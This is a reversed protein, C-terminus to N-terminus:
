WDTQFLNWLQNSRELMEEKEKKSIQPFRNTPNYNNCKSPCGLVNFANGIFQSQFSHSLTDLAHYHRYHLCSGTAASMNQDNIIPKSKKAQWNYKGKYLDYSEVEHRVPKFAATYQEHFDNAFFDLFAKANNYRNDNSMKLHQIDPRSNSLKYKLGTAIRLAYTAFCFKKLAKEIKFNQKQEGKLFKAEDHLSYTKIFDHMVCLIACNFRRSQTSMRCEIRCNINEFLMSAYVRKHFLGMVDNPTNCALDHIEDLTAYLSDKLYKMNTSTMLHIVIPHAPIVFHNPSLDNYFKQQTTEDNLMYLKSTSDYNIIKAYSPYVDESRYVYLWTHQQLSTAPIVPPILTPKKQLSNSMPAAKRKKFAANGIKNNTTINAEKPSTPLTDNATSQQSIFSETTITGLAKGTANPITIKDTARHANIKSTLNGMTPVVNT